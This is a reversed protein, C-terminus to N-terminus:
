ETTTAHLARRISAFLQDRLVLAKPEEESCDVIVQRLTDPLIVWERAFSAAVDVDGFAQTVVLRFQGFLDTEIDYYPAEAPFSHSLETQALREGVTGRRALFVVYVQGIVFSSGGLHLIAGAQVGKLSEEVQARYVPQYREGGEGATIRVEAIVDASRILEALKRVRIERSPLSRASLQGFSVGLLLVFLPVYRVVRRQTHRIM